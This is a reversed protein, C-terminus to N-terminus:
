LFVNFTLCSRQLSVVDNNHCRFYDTHRDWHGRLRLGTDAAKRRCINRIRVWGLAHMYTKHFNHTKCNYTETVPWDSTWLFGVARAGAHTRAHTDM